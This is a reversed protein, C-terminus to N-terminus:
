LLSVMALPLSDTCSVLGVVPSSVRPPLLLIPSLRQCVDLLVPTYMRVMGPSHGVM